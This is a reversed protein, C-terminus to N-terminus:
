KKVSKKAKPTKKKPFSGEFFCKIDRYTGCAGVEKISVRSTTFTFEIVCPGSNQHFVAKSAGSFVAEGKLEGNCTGKDKEFHIFFLATKGAKGDRISVFNKRDIAYDGSYKNKRPLTDLPNIVGEDMKSADNSETMILTFVGESNYVFADKQYLLQDGAGKRRRMVTITYRSDMDAHRSVASNSETVILPMAVVFQQDKNFVLIYGVRKAGAVAKVFLYTEAKKVVVKGLPFLSPRGKKGFQKALVSDPVFKSFRKYTVLSTDKEKKILISDTMQYPLKLGPFFGMFEEVSVDDSLATKKGKCCVLIAPFLLFLLINKM